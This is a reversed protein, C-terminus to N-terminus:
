RQAKAAARARQLDRVRKSGNATNTAAKNSTTSRDAKLDHWFSSGKQADWYEGTWYSFDSGDTIKSADDSSLSPQRKTSGDDEANAVCTFSTVPLATAAGLALLTNAFRTATPQYKMTCHHKLSM